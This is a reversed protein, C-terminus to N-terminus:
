PHKKQISEALLKTINYKENLPVVMRLELNDVLIYDFDLVENLEKITKFILDNREKLVEMKRQTLREEDKRLTAQMQQQKNVLEREANEVYSQNLLNKRQLEELEKQKRQQFDYLEREKGQANQYLNDEMEVLAEAQRKLYPVGMVLEEMSFYGLKAHDAKQLVSTLSDGIADDTLLKTEGSPKKVGKDGDKKGMFNLSISLLLGIALIVNFISQKNM